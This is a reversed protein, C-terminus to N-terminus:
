PRQLDLRVKIHSEALPCDLFCVLRALDLTKLGLKEFGGCEQSDM